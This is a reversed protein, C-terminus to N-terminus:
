LRDEQVRVIGPRRVVGTQTSLASTEQRPARYEPEPERTSQLSLATKAAVAVYTVWVIANQQLAISESLSFLLFQGAVGLAFIGLWSDISLWAARAILLAFNLILLGLGILGVGLATELWGNHATPVLWETAARVRYAPMSELQWFAGYGYGLLPRNGIADVLVSWIDTRGTLTADRGLLNFILAPNIAMIAAFGAVLVIGIWLSSITIAAGRRSVWGAFLVGFGFLLGLLATKSTSFLVLVCCLFVATGWVPRWPKDLVFLFACLFAARAMHGGLANKEWWLGRWAGPHVETMVAFGPAVLVSVISVVAMFLWVAGLLRLLTRWDYRAALFLGALSTAVVAISRRETLAPDLSWLFSASTVALLGILFPLRITAAFLTRIKWLCGAIVLGYVPIWLLRLFASSEPNYQDAFLRPLLGETFLVLCVFVVCLEIALLVGVGLSRQNDPSGTQSIHM